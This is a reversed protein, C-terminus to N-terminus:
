GALDSPEILMSLSFTQPGSGTVNIRMWLHREPNSPSGDRNIYPIDVAARYAGSTITVEGDTISHTAPEGGEIASSSSSGVFVKAAAEADYIEFVGNLAAGQQQLNINKITGRHPVRLDVVQDVGAEIEFQVPGYGWQNAM